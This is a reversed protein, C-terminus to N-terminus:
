ESLNGLQPWQLQLWSDVEEKGWNVPNEEDHEVNKQERNAMKVSSLFRGLAVLAFHGLKLYYGLTEISSHLDEVCPSLSGVLLIQVFALMYKRMRLRVKFEENVVKAQRMREVSLAERLLM